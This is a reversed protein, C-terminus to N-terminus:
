LYGSQAFSVYDGDAVIIHDMLRIDMLRLAQKLEQTFARDEASPIAFGAPHNHALVASVCRRRVAEDVVRRISVNVVCLTGAAIQTCSIVGGRGNLCLLYAKEETEYRLIPLFYRGADVPSCVFATERLPSIMYRRLAERLTKLFLAANEGIGEIRRLDASDADLVGRISGYRELLAHALVNTDSRPIAYYLLMELFQIDNMGEGGHEAFQQKMRKRHGDHVSSM